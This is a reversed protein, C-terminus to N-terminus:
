GVRRSEGVPRALRRRKVFLMAAVANLTVSGGCVAGLLFYTLRDSM